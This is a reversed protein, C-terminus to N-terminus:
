ENIAKLGYKIHLEALTGNAILENLAQRISELIRADTSNHFAYGMSSTKLVHIIEFKDPNINETKFLFQTAAQTYAIADIRGSDLKKVMSLGSNLRDIAAPKIGQAILLQEGIDDRVVGIKLRNLDDPSEISLLSSKLAFVAVVNPVIPGVFTMKQLREATYTTSFLATGQDNLIKHYGRAWPYIYLNVKESSIGLNNFIQLLVDVAIGTVKGTDPDRYNFPPNEETIWNLNEIAQAVERPDNLDNEAVVSTSIMIMWLLLVAILKEILIKNNYIWNM